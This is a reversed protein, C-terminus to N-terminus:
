SKSHVTKTLRITTGNTPDHSIDVADVLIEMLLAGINDPDPRECTIGEGNSGTNYTVVVTLGAPSIECRLTIAKAGSGSDGLQDIGGACAEGVALRLDEVEDYSFQMRSAVGLIALRAVGVYEARSPISLTVVLPEGSQFENM